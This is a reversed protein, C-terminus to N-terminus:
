LDARLPRRRAGLWELAILGGPTGHDLRPEREALQSQGCRMGRHKMAAGAAIDGVGGRLTPQAFRVEDGDDRRGDLLELLHEGVHRVLRAASVVAPWVARRWM